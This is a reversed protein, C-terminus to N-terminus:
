FSHAPHSGIIFTSLFEIYQTTQISSKGEDDQQYTYALSFKSFESPKWTLTPVLATTGNSVKEGSVTELSLNTFFDARVGLSWTQSLAISPFIYGGLLTEADSNEPTQTRSWLESQISYKLLRGQRWKSMVDLGLYTFKNHQYNTRGIYNLGVNIGGNYPLDMYHASRLYHTPVDPSEGFSHSHGFFWGNTVGLTVDWYFPTPMLVHAEIGSDLVGEASFFDSHVRPATIFPWDHRHVQNLRGTGLFFQGIRFRTRPILKSSSVFAEHIEFLTGDNEPHAALSLQGDFLYDIPARFLIEAERTELHNSRVSNPNTNVYTDVAISTQLGTGDMPNIAVLPTTICILVTFLLWFQQRHHSM